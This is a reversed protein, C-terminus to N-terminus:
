DRQGFQLKERLLQFFDEGKTRLSFHNKGKCVTICDGKELNGYSRGDLVLSGCSSLIRCHLPCHFPFIMPRITLSHPAIASVALGEVHPHVIPGGTALNYATSGTPTSLVLGDARLGKVVQQEQYFLDFCVLQSFSGREIVVDNLAYLCLAKRKKRILCVELLTHSHLYLQHSFLKELSSSGEEKRHVTLFGLSGSNIGLLPVPLAESLRVARLYTGDGGLVLFFHIEHLHKQIDEEQVYISNQPIGVAHLKELIKKYLGKDVYPSLVLALQVGSLPEPLMFPDGGRLDKKKRQPGREVEQPM